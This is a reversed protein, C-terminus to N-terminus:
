SMTEMSLEAPALPWCYKYGKAISKERCSTPEEVLKGRPRDQPTTTMLHGKKEEIDVFCVKKKVDLIVEKKECFYKLALLVITKATVTVKTIRTDPLTVAKAFSFNAYQM